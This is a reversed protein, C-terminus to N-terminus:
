ESANHTSTLKKKLCLTATTGLVDRGVSGHECPSILLRGAGEEESTIGYSETGESGIGLLRALRRVLRYTEEGRERQHTFARRYKPTDRGSRAGFVRVLKPPRTVEGQQLQTTTFKPQGTSKSSSSSPSKRPNVEFRSSCPPQHAHTNFSHITTRTSPTSASM